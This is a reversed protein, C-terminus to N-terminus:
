DWAGKLLELGEKEEIVWDMWDKQGFSMAGLIPLSVRQGSSGLQVYSVKTGDLSEQLEKPMPPGGSMQPPPRLSVVAKSRSLYPSVWISTSLRNSRATRSKLLPGKLNGNPAM